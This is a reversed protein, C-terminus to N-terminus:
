VCDFDFWIL